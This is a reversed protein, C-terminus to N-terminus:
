PVLVFSNKKERFYRDLANELTPLIQGKESGLVSYIPREANLNLHSGPIAKIGNPCFKLHKAVLYALDAWTISGKNALHWIGSERDILLDLAAHVLDPVFTPSIYQDNAVPVEQEKALSEGVWHLFNYEDWLGFFASTRIVLASPDALFVHEEGLVKSRGYTNLPSTHDSEVYPKRKEGDFVLDSSFTVLQVGNRACAGALSYPGIANERYCNEADNEADDVRVYGAANIIAWPRVVRIMEEISHPEAIDCDQRSLLKYGISRDGCIKAFARGLTGHKGIIAVRDRSVEKSTGRIIAPAYILRTDRQWWGKEVTLQHQPVSDANIGRIYTAL